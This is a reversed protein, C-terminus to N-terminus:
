LLDLILNLLTDPAVKEGQVGCISPLTHNKPLSSDTRLQSHYSVSHRLLLALLSQLLLLQAELLLLNRIYRRSPVQDATMGLATLVNHAGYARM